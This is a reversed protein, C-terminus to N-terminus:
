LLQVYLCFLLAYLHLLFSYLKPPAFYRRYLLSPVDDHLPYIQTYILWPRRREKGYVARKRVYIAPLLPRPNFCPLHMKLFSLLASSKLALLVIGITWELGFSAGFCNSTFFVVYSFSYFLM